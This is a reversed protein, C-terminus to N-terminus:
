RQTVAHVQSIIIYCGGRRGLLAAFAGSDVMDTFYMAFQVAGPRATRIAAM